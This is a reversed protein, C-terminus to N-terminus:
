CRGEVHCGWALDEQREFICPQHVGLCGRFFACRLRSLEELLIM